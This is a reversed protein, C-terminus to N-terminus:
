FQLDLWRGAQQNKTWISIQAAFRDMATRPLYMPVVMCDKGDAGKCKMFYSPLKNMIDAAMPIGGAIRKGWGFDMRDEGIASIDSVCFTRDVVMPPWKRSALFDVTSRMYEDNAESKAKRVLELAYSLPKGCLEGATTEVIPYVLACGYYGRPMPPDRKWGM